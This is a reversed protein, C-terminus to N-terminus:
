QEIQNCIPAFPRLLYRIILKVINVPVQMDVCLFCSDKLKDLLKSRGLLGQCYPHAHSLAHIHTQTYAYHTYKHKFHTHLRAPPQHQHPHLFSPIRIYTHTHIHVYTHNERGHVWECGRGMVRKRVRGRAGVTVKM